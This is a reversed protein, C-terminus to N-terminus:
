GGGGGGHTGSDGGQEEGGSGAPRTPSVPDTGRCEWPFQCRGQGLISGERGQPVACGRTGPLTSGPCGGPGCRSAAGLVAPCSKSRCNWQLQRSSLTFRGTCLDLWSHSVGLVELLVLSCLVCGEPQSPVCPIPVQSACSSSQSGAAGTSPAPIFKSGEM